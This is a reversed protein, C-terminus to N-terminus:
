ADPYVEEYVKKLLRTLGISPRLADRTLAYEGNATYATSFYAWGLAGVLYISLDVLSELSAWMPGEKVSANENHALVKDRVNKLSSLASKLSEGKLEDRIYKNLLKPFAKPNENISNILAVPANRAELSRCLQYPERISPLDSSYKGLYNLLGRLCRTPYKQSPSDFIRAVALVAETTLASHIAQFTPGFNGKEKSSIENSYEFMSKQLGRAREFRFIDHVLGEKVIDEIHDRSFSM